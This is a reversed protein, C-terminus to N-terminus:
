SLDDEAFDTRLWRVAAHVVQLASLFSLILLVPVVWEPILRECSPVTAQLTVIFAVLAIM